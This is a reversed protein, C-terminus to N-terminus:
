PAFLKLHCAILLCCPFVELLQDEDFCHHTPEGSAKVEALESLQQRAIAIIGIVHLDTVVCPQERRIAFSQNLSFHVTHLPGPRQAERYIQVKVLRLTWKLPLTSLCRARGELFYRDTQRHQHRVASTTSVAAGPSLSHRLITMDSM